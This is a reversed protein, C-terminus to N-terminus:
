ALRTVRDGDDAPGDPEDRNPWKFTGREDKYVLRNLDHAALGFQVGGNDTNADRYNVRGLSYAAINTNEFSFVADKVGKINLKEISAQSDFDTVPDPLAVIDPDVGAFLLSNRAGRASINKVNGDSRLSFGDLWQGVNLNILAYVDANVAQTLTLAGSADEKVKLTGVRTATLDGDFDLKSEFTDIAGVFTAQWDPGVNDATVKKTPGTVDWVGDDLEGKFQAIKLTYEFGTAGGLVLAAQFDGDIDDGRDGTVLVKEVATGTLSDATDDTDLWRVLRFLRVPTDITASLDAVLNFQVDATATADALAGIALTSGTVVDHLLLKETGGALTFDGLLDVEKGLFEGLHGSGDVSAIVTTANKGKPTILVKSEVNTGSLTLDFADLTDSAALDGRGNGRLQYEVLVGNADTAVMKVNSRGDVNGFAYVHQYIASSVALNNDENLEDVADSTDIEVALYSEGLPYTDDVKIKAKIQTSKGSSLRLRKGTVEGILMTDGSFDATASLYYRVNIFADVSVDGLNKLGAGITAKDGPVYTDPLTVTGVSALLDPGSVLVPEISLLYEQDTTNGALDTVRIRVEHDGLDNAAPSWRVIGTDIDITMDRPGDRLEYQLGDGGEEDTEADYVYPTAANGETEAASTFTPATADVVVELPESAAGTLDGITQTATLDYAGDALVNTGNTTIVVVSTEAVKAGILIAGAYLKVTAGATVGTITFEMRTSANNKYATVNDVVSAGTDSSNLLDPVSPAAPPTVADVKVNGAGVTVTTTVPVSFAEGSFTVTYDGAPLIMQYGGASLSTATFTGADGVARATAGSVGEGEDYAGDQDSDTYIVGLLYPNVLDARNGLDQTILLPGTSNGNATDVIGIGIEAFAPNMMNIRHGPPDQIGNPGLGWDIAFAAHTHFVNQGFAYVNEGVTTFNYGEALVRQGLPVEGPLQHSQEDFDRMLESHGVAANYLAENWALPTTPNLDAWQQRLVDEDVDFGVLAALVGPDTSDLLLDIEAEPDLRM